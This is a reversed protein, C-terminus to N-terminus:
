GDARKMDELWAEVDPEPYLEKGPKRFLGGEYWRIWEADSRYEKGTLTKLAYRLATSQDPHFTGHKLWHICFFVARPDNTLLSAMIWRGVWTYETGFWGVWKWSGWFLQSDFPELERRPFEARIRATAALADTMSWDGVDPRPDPGAPTGDCRELLFTAARAALERSASTVAFIGSTASIDVREGTDRQTLDLWSWNRDTPRECDGESDYNVQGWLAHPLEAFYPRPAALAISYTHM